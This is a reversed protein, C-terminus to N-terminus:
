SRQKPEDESPSAAREPTGTDEDPEDGGLAASAREGPTQWPIARGEQWAPPRGGPVWGALLLGLYVFWLLAFLIFGIILAFGLAMGLSAWFRGLLGTRMAWLSVYFLAVVLSLAGFISFVGAMASLSVDSTANKAADDELKTRECAALPTEGGRAEYEDAFDAAGSDKRDSACEQNAERKTLTPQSEGAVFRDAAEGRAIAGIGSSAALCVPGILCFGIMIGAVRESRAQDARFLYLLPATLLLFALANLAGALTVSSAHADASRLLEAEGDGHVASGAIAAALLLAVALLAAIGVPKAWREERDLIEARDM